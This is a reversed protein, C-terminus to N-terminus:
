SSPLTPSTSAVCAHPGSNLDGAIMYLLQVQCRLEPFTSVSEVLNAKEVLELCALSGTEYFLTLITYPQDM